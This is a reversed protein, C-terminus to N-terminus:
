IKPIKQSPHTLREGVLLHFEEIHCGIGFVGREAIADTRAIRLRCELVWARQTGSPDHTPIMLDGRLAEGCVLPTPSLFYIGSSSIDETEAQLVAIRPERYLLLPWHLKLRARKRRDVARRPGTSVFEVIGPSCVERSTASM